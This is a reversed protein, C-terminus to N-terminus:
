LDLMRETLGLPFAEPRPCSSKLIYPKGERVADSFGHMIDLVHYALEGCARNQRGSIISCAMDAVGIGRSNGTFGYALPVSSWEKSEKRWILVPGDFTNPDPVIITGESGYIEIAPLKSAWVDFSTILNTIVGNKFNLIGSSYTPVEVKIKHGYKPNSTITREAFSIKQSAFVSEVPGLLSILATLYYPGMDFLPGAGNKYLFEPNPHWTEPGSSMMFATAAVPEGIWGDDLLKRCTQLGGGLFTDPAAGVLLSKEGAIRLIEQADERSISLPKETYVNKGAKLAKICIEGHAEPITLNVVLDIDPDALLENVSCAKAINFQAAREQAREIALDACAAVELMEFRGTCNKLYIESINGCGIFGIKVKKM